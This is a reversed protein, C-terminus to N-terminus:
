NFRNSSGGRKRNAARQEAAKKREESLGDDVPTAKPSNDNFEFAAAKPSFVQGRDIPPAGPPPKKFVPRDPDRAYATKRCWGAALIGLPVAALALVSLTGVAAAASLGVVAGAQAIGGLISTAAAGTSFAPVGAYSLGAGVAAIAGGVAATIGLWKGAKVLPLPIKAGFGAIKDKVSKLGRQLFNGDAKNHLWQNEKERVYGYVFSSKALMRLKQFGQWGYNIAVSFGVLSILTPVLPLAAIIPVALVASTVAAAGVFYGVDKGAKKADNRTTYEFPTRMLAKTKQMFYWFKGPSKGDYQISM